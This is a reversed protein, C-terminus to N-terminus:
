SVGDLKPQHLQGAHNASLVSGAAVRPVQAQAPSLALLGTDREPSRQAAARSMPLNSLPRGDRVRAPEPLSGGVPLHGREHRDRPAHRTACECHAYAGRGIPAPLRVSHRAVAAGHRPDLVLRLVRDPRRRRRFGAVDLLGPKLPPHRVLRQHQDGGGYEPCAVLRGRVARPQAAEIAGERQVANHWTAEGRM